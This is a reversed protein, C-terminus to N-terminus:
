LLGAERARRWLTLRRVGLARAAAAVNGAASLAERMAAADVRLKRRGGIVRHGPLLRGRADRNV